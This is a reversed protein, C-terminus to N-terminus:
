EGNLIRRITRSCPLANAGRSALWDIIAADREKLTIWPPIGEPWLDLAASQIGAARSARWPRRKIPAPNTDEDDRDTSKIQLITAM